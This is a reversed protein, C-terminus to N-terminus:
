VAAVTPMRKHGNTAEWDVRYTQGVTLAADTFSVIGSANTTLGTKRVVLAGTTLHYLALYSLAQNSELNGVNDILPESIFTAGAGASSHAAIGFTPAQATFNVACTPGSPAGAGGLLIRGSPLVGPDAALTGDPLFSYPM